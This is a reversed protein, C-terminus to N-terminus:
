ALLPEIRRVPDSGDWDLAAGRTITYLKNGVASDDALELFCGLIARTDVYCFRPGGEGFRGETVVVAGEDTLQKITEDYKGLARCIHHFGVSGCPAGETYASPETSTQQILEVQIDGAHALGILMSISSPEGRYDVAMNDVDLTYFPGVGLNLWQSMAKDLDDVVWAIQVIPLHPDPTPALPM